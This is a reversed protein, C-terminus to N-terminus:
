PKTAAFNDFRIAVGPTNDSVATLAVEGSTLDGDQVGAVRQGNVYLTLSNGVCDFRIRNTAGGTHIASDAGEVLVTTQDNKVKLLVFDGLGAIEGGSSIAAVYFDGSDTARCLIGFLNDDPGGIRTADVEVRTDTLNALKSNSAVLAKHPQSLTFRYGGNAYAISDGSPFQGQDWGSNPNSFDDKLIVNRQPQTKALYQERGLLGALVVYPTGAHEPHYELRTRETYQVLYTKGDTPSVEPFEDSIPYGVLALGGHTTWWQAFDANLCRGTEPFCTAGAGGAPRGHPYKALFQERGLLGALVLYPTGANEPHLELRTRETDQVTYTKGDTPNVEQLEGTIPYGLLDLGGKSQWFDLFPGALCQGTQPFCVPASAAAAPAAGALAVGTVLLLAAVAVLHILRRAVKRAGAAPAAPTNRRFAGGAGSARPQEGDAAAPRRPDRRRRREAEAQYLAYQHQALFQDIFPDFM